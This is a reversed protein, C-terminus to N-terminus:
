KIVVTFGEALKRALRDKIQDLESKLEGAQHPGFSRGGLEALPRWEYAKQAPTVAARAPAAASGPQALRLLEAEITSRWGSLGVAIGLLAGLSHRESAALLVEATSLELDPLYLPGDAAFYRDLLPERSGPSANRYPEGDLLAKRLCAVEETVGAYIQQYASRYGGLARHYADRYATWKDLIARERVVAQADEMGKRIEEAEPRDPPPPQSRCLDLVRRSAEFLRDRGDALFAALDEAFGAMAVWEEGRALFDKVVATPDRATSATKCLSEAGEYLEPLPLGFAACTRARDAAELLATGTERVRAAIVNGAEPVDTAGIRVLLRAAAKLEEVSLGTQAIHFAVHRFTNVKVLLDVTGPETYDFLRRAGQAAPIELYVAGGRLAAALTLRVIESPWGYPIRSFFALLSAGDTPRNEDELSAVAELVTAPLPRERQLMGQSDFLDLEPEIDHLKREAPNLIRAVSRFDYRRDADAFRTYLNAVLTRGAEQLATKLDRSGDLQQEDGSLYMSGERFSRELERALSEELAAREKRKERLADQTSDATDRTFREDETLKRLAEYRKLRGALAAPTSAIWYLTRGKNGHARNEREIEARDKKGASLPDTFSVAIENGTALDEGDLQVDYAFLAQSKGYRIQFQDLKGKTLIRAKLIEKAQRVAPGIGMDSVLRQVEQEITREKENLYKYQGTAEDRAVYGAAQLALLTQEVETRLAPLDATVDRALLKAVVEPTRPVFTVREEQLLWLVKLVRAPWKAGPVREASERIAQVGSAGLYEQSYLDQEIADFVQDFSALAGIEQDALKRAVEQTVSIMSRVGGSIRFGSLAEFVDQALKITHPLFPYSAAFTARDLQGLQRTSKIDALQALFGTHREYLSVLEATKAERKKLIREGVVKNIEDSVLGVKVCFRADLKGLLALQLNARDCVQELAQQSTVVLWIRGKGQNGLQEVLSRLEEIKSRDDSIFQGMEDIVFVLHPQRADPAPQADVWEVLERAVSDATVKENRYADMLGERAAAETKYEEPYVRTMVSAIRSRNFEHEKRGDEWSQGFLKQYEDKFDPYRGRAALRKEVRALYIADSYGLSEYFTSLLIEAVSSPNNLTQKAKIEFAVTKVSAGLRIEGLRRKIDRALRGDDLHREFLDMASASTAPDVIPNALLYGVLKAFHSKGSGFFGSIWIGMDDMPQARKRRADLSETFTDLIAKLKEETWDTLVFERIEQALAAQDYVKVVGEIRRGLDRVFLDRIPM